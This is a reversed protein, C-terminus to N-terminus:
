ALHDKKWKEPTPFIREFVEVGKNYDDKTWTTRGEEQMSRDVTDKFVAMAIRYGVIIV